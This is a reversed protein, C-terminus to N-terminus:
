QELPAPTGFRAGEAKEQKREFLFRQKAGKKKVGAARWKRPVFRSHGFFFISYFEVTPWTNIEFFPSLLSLSREKFLRLGGVAARGPRRCAATREDSTGTHRVAATVRVRRHTNVQSGQLPANGHHRLVYGRKNDRLCFLENHPPLTPMFRSASRFNFRDYFEM